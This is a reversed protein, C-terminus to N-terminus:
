GKTADALLQVPAPAATALSRASAVFPAAQNVPVDHDIGKAELEAVFADVTRRLEPSLHDALRDKLDAIPASNNTTQVVTAIVGFAQAHKEQLQRAAKATAPELLLNAGQLLLSAIAGWPGLLAALAPPLPLKALAAVACGAAVLAGTGLDSYWHADATAATAAAAGKGAETAQAPHAIYDGAVAAPTAIPDGAWAGAGLVILALLCTLVAFLLDPTWPCRLRTM